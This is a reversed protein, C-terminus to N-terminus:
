KIRLLRPLRTTSPTTSRPLPFPLRAVAADDAFRVVLWPQDVSSSTAHKAKRGNKVTMNAMMLTPVDSAKMTLEGMM